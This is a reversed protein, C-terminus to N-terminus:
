IIYIMMVRFIDKWKRRWLYLIKELNTCGNFATESIATISKPIFITELNTLNIFADSGIQKILADNTTTEPIVISTLHTADKKTISFDSTDPIPTFDFYNDATVELFKGIFVMSSEVVSNSFDFSM